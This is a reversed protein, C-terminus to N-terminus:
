KRITISYSRATGRVTALGPFGTKETKWWREMRDLKELNAAAGAGAFNNRYRYLLLLKSFTRTMRDAHNDIYEDLTAMDDTSNVDLGLTSTLADTLDGRASDVYETELMEDTISAPLFVTDQERMYDPDAALTALTM